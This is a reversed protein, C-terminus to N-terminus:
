LVRNTSLRSVEDNILCNPMFQVRGLHVRSIKRKDSDSSKRSSNSLKRLAEVKSVVSKRGEAM